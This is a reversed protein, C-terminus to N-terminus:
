SAKELRFVMRPTLSTSGNRIYYVVNDFRAKFCLKVTHSAGDGVVVAQLAWPNAWENEYSWTGAEQVPSIGDFLAIMGMVSIGAAVGTAVVSLKYGVPVVVTHVLNTADVDVYLLSLTSYNGAGSGSKVVIIPLVPPVTVLVWATGTDFYMVLEDTAWYLRGLRGFAPRAALTGSNIRATGTKHIGDVFTHEEGFSGKLQARTVRIEGAGGSLNETDLPKTEDLVYPAPM